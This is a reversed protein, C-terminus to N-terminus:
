RQVRQASTRRKMSWTRGKFRQRCRTSWQTPCWQSRARNSACHTQRAATSKTGVLHEISPSSSESHSHPTSPLTQSASSSRLWRPGSLSVLSPRTRIFITTSALPMSTQLSFAPWASATTVRPASQLQAVTRTPIARRAAGAFAAVLMGQTTGALGLTTLCLPAPRVSACIKM